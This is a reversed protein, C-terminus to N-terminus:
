IYKCGRQLEEYELYLAYLYFISYLYLIHSLVCVHTVIQEWGGQNAGLVPVMWYTVRTINVTRIAHYIVTAAMFEPGPVVQTLILQSLNTYMVM